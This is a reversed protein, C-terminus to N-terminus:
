GENKICLSTWAATRALIFIASESNPIMGLESCIVATYLAANPHVDKGAEKMWGHLQEIRANANPFDAAIIERVRSWAPDIRDKFFSNGFGPIKM